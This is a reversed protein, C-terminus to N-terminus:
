GANAHRIDALALGIPACMAGPQTRAEGAALSTGHDVSVRVSQGM